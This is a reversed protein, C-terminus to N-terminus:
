INNKTDNQYTDNQYSPPTRYIHYVTVVNRLFLKVNKQVSM